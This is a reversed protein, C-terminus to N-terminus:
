SQFFLSFRAQRYLFLISKDDMRKRKSDIGHPLQGKQQEAASFHSCSKFFDEM